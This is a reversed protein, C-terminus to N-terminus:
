TTSSSRGFVGGWAGGRRYWARKGDAMAKKHGAVVLTAFSLYENKPFSRYWNFGWFLAVKRSKHPNNAGEFDKMM